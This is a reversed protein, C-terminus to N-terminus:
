FFFKMADERTKVLGYNYEKKDTIKSKIYSLKNYFNNFSKNFSTKNLLDNELEEVIIFNDNRELINLNNYFIQLFKTHYPACKMTIFIIEVFTFVKRPSVFNHILKDYFTGDNIVDSSYKQRAEYEDYLYSGM